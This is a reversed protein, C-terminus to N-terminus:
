SGLAGVAEWFARSHASTSLDSLAGSPRAPIAGEPFHVQIGSAAIGRFMTEDLTLTRGRWTGHQIIGGSAAKAAHDFSVIIPQHDIARDNQDLRMANIVIVAAGGSSAHMVVVFPCKSLLGTPAGPPLASTEVVSYCGPQVFGSWSGYASYPVGYPSLWM